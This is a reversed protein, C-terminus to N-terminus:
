GRKQERRQLGARELLSQSMIDETDVEELKNQNAPLSYQITYFRKGIGIKDGPHLIKQDVRLDNVWNSHIDGTLVVPNPVRREALFKMLGMREHACGPWQDM